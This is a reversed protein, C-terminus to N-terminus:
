PRARIRARTRAAAIKVLLEVWDTLGAVLHGLPGTFYWTILRERM